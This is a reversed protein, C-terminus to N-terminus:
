LVWGWLHLLWLLGLYLPTLLLGFLVTNLIAELLSEPSEFWGTRSSILAYIWGATLGSICLITFEVM